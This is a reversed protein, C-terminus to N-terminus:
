LFGFDRVKSVLIRLSNDLSGALINSIDGFESNIFLLKLPLVQNTLRPFFFRAVRAVRM